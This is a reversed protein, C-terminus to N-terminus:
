FPDFNRAISAQAGSFNFHNAFFRGRIESSDDGHIRLETNGYNRCLMARGADYVKEEYMTQYPMM